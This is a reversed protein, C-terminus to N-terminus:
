VLDAVDSKIDFISMARRKKVVRDICIYRGSPSLRPHLDCRVDGSFGVPSHPRALQVARRESTRYLLLQQERYKDPYTDTVLFKGEPGFSPHGDETLVGDGVIERKETGDEYLYYRKGTDAHRAFALLQNSSQWAYHSVFGSDNMMRVDDGDVGATFMRIARKGIGDVMIHFFMFRTGSPNFLLHNFYHEKDAVDQGRVGFAVIDALSVLLKQEDTRMDLRWIGDDKPAPENASIDPLNLYGYGPRLRQLRSFNVSLGWRGDRSVAYLPRRFEKEVLGSNVNQVVCGYRGDVMRNYLINRGGEAPYWQLRCGQQWCWTETEGVPVFPATQDALQYLGVRARDGSNPRSGVPVRLALVASERLDFPTVDYYGFFVHHHPDAFTLLPKRSGRQRGLVGRVTRHYLAAVATKLRQLRSVRRWGLLKKANEKAGNPVAM